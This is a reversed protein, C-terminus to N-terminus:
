EGFVLESVALLGKNLAPLAKPCYLKHPSLPRALTQRFRPRTHAAINGNGTLIIVIQTTMCLYRAKLDFCPQLGSVAAFSRLRPGCLVM